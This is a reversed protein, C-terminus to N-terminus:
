HIVRHYSGRVAVMVAVLLQQMVELVEGGLV